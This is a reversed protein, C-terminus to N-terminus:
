NHNPHSYKELKNIYKARILESDLDFIELDFCLDTLFRKFYYRFVGSKKLLWWYFLEGKVTM